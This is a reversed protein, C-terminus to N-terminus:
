YPQADHQERPGHGPGVCRVHRDPPRGLEWGHFTASATSPTPRSASVEDGRPGHVTVKVVGATALKEDFSLSIAVEDDEGVLDRDLELSTITAGIGDSATVKSVADDDTDVENGAKDTVSDWLRHLLSPM